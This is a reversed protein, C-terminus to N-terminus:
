KGAEDDPHGPDVFWGGHHQMAPAKPDPPPLKAEVEARFAETNDQPVHGPHGARRNDIPKVANDSLGVSLTFGVCPATPAAATPRNCEEFSLWSWLMRRDAPEPFSRFIRLAVTEVGFKDWYLRGDVPVWGGRRLAPGGPAGTTGHAVLSEVLPRSGNRM